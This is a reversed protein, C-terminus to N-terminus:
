DFTFEYDDDSIEMMPIVIENKDADDHKDMMLLAVDQFMHDDGDPHGVDVYLTNNWPDRKVAVFLHESDTDNYVHVASEPVSLRAAFQQRLYQSMNPM